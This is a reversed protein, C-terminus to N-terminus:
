PCLHASQLQALTSSCASANGAAAVSACNAGETASVVAVLTCCSELSVCSPPPSSADPRVGGDVVVNGADTWCGPVPGWAGASLAACAQQVLPFALVGYPCTQVVCQESGPGTQASGCETNSRCIQAYAGACSPLCATALLDPSTACCVGSRCDATEDCAQEVFCSGADLPACAIGGDGWCCVQTSTDCSGTGCAIRGPDCAAGGEPAVCAARGADGGDLSSGESDADAPVSSAEGEASGDAPAEGNADASGGSSSAAGSAETSAGDGEGGAELTADGGADGSASGGGSNGCAWSLSGLVLAGCGALVEWRM